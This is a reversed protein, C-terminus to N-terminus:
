DLGKITLILSFEEMMKMTKLNLNMLIVGEIQSMEVQYFWTIILLQIENVRRARVMRLFKRVRGMTRGRVRKLIKLWKERERIRTVRVRGRIRGKEWELVVGGELMFKLLLLLKLKMLM